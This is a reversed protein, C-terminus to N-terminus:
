KGVCFQSFITELLEATSVEGTIEGLATLADRFHPAILDLTQGAQVLALGGELAEVARDILSKQRESAIGTPIERDPLSLLAAAIDKGLDALGAGTKASVARYGEPAPATDAKNWVPLLPVPSARIFDEDKPVLGHAGDIVYLVLDACSALERSRNIGLQELTDSSDHLGATDVLRVPLGEIVIWAEIWDRTTGPVPTVISRDERLLRNFLSSKGANPRGAIVLLAGEQYLREQQFSASLARLRELVACAAQTDPIERDSELEEDPYDLVIEIGALIALLCRKLDQIQAELDGALRQVARERAKDTKARVIEMVSEAKTLDLKGNMFARFTFEGPLAARFGAARLTKLVAEVVAVGGHCTIEASEEGTYSRPAHFVSVLVSDIKEGANNLWGYVISHAPARELQAPASFCRAILSLTDKGSCRILALASEAKPTALAAIPSDDGYLAKM